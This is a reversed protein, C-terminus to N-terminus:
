EIEKKTMTLKDGQNCLGCPAFEECIGGRYACLPVLIDKFEPCVEIVQKCMEKVVASTEKASKRCLRKHAINVLEEANMYWYMDVPADQPAKCRDYESQRDNRQSKVFPVSHIHRVLHTSVWYPIDTIKFCFNLVRVPSHNAKLIKIKWETTPPTKVSFGMTGLACQKCLFWDEDTPHKVIEINM